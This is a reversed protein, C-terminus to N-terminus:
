KFSALLYTFSGVPLVLVPGAKYKSDRLGVARGAFAVELCNAVNSSRSSKLWQAGTRTSALM